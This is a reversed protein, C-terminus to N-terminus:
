CRCRGPGEQAAPPLRRRSQRRHPGRIGGQGPGGPLQRPLQPGHPGLPGPRPPDTRNLRGSTKLQTYFQQLDLQSLKGLPIQGLAPLIHKYIMAEYASRTNPRLGPRCYNRYWFDM